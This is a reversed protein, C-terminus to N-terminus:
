RRAIQEDPWRGAMRRVIDSASESTMSWSSRAQEEPGAVRYPTRRWHILLVVENSKEDVDAVVEKIVLHVIRQKLKM